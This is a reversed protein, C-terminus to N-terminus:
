TLPTWIEPPMGSSAESAKAEDVNHVNLLKSIFVAYANGNQFSLQKLRKQIQEYYQKAMAPLGYQTMLFKQLHESYNMAEKPPNKATAGTFIGKNFNGIDFAVMENISVEILRHLAQDPLQRVLSKMNVVKKFTKKMAASESAKPVEPTGTRSRQNSHEMSSVVHM